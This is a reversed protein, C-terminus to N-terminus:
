ELAAEELIEHLIPQGDLSWRPVFRENVFITPLGYIGPPMGHRLRPLQNGAEVDELISQQLESEAMADLFTDEDFGLNGLARRLVQDDFAGQNEMLWAHMRWYGESGAVRGAAEAARAARCANAYRKEKIKPNCDSNIPYHRYAYLVSAEGAGYARIISDARATVEHQYDGWMVVKVPADRPGLTWARSDPPLSIRPQQRWDEVYKEFAAAPMDFSASRAPPNTAAVQEVTRVLANAANWGKLEVGNIFIMPTFHIGLRKAEETDARVSKLTEDGTMVTTFGAPDYGMQRIGDELARTTEFVGRRDFLWTHMKWFGEPGWLIGAAEAARAAWCANPHLTKSVFRNCNASFPFHKVSISIDNREEHLQKLQKEIEYCDRCQYDTFIVIRIPANEPGVRYRGTFAPGATATLVPEDPAPRAPDTTTDLGGARDIIEQTVERRESEAKQEV